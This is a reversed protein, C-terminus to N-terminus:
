SGTARGVLGVSVPLSLSELECPDLSWARAMRLVDDEQPIQLDERDWYGEEQAAPSSADYLHAILEAEDPFTEGLNYILEDCYAFLRRESGALYRAWASYSSVRHTAFFQAEGFRSSLQSMLTRWRPLAAPDGPDPIGPGVALVWGGLPPTVFVYNSPYAYAARFGSNWNSVRLDNLQLADALSRADSSQIAIWLNKRGFGIPQDAESHIEVSEM